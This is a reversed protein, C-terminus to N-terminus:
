ISKDIQMQLTLIKRKSANVKEGDERKVASSLENIADKMGTLLQALRTIDEKRM